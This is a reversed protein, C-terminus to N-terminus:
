NLNNTIGLYYNVLVLLIKCIMWISNITTTTTNRLHLIRIISKLLLAIIYDYKDLAIIKKNTILFIM